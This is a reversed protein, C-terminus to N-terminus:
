DSKPKEDEGKSPSESSVVRRSGDPYFIVIADPALILADAGLRWAITAQNKVFWAVMDDLESM